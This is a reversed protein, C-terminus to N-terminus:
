AVNLDISTYNFKLTGKFPFNVKLFFKQYISYILRDLLHVHKSKKM